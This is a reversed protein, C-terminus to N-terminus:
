VKHIDLYETNDEQSMVTKVAEIVARAFEEAGSETKWRTFAFYM